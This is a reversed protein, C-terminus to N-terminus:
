TKHNNKFLVQCCFCFLSKIGVECLRNYFIFSNISAFFISKIIFLWTIRSNTMMMEHGFFSREALELWSEFYKVGPVSSLFHPHAYVGVLPFDGPFVPEVPLQKM